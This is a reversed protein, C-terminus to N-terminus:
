KPLDIETIDSASLDSYIARLKGDKRYWFVIAREPQDLWLGDGLYAYDNSRMSTLFALAAGLKGALEENVKGDLSLVELWSAWDDLSAPLKGDALEAHGRMLEILNEEPAMAAQVVKEDVDCVTYGEPVEFSFLSEDAEEDFNFNKNVFKEIPSDDPFFQEVMVLEESKADVWIAFRYGGVFVEKGFTMVGDIEKEGLDITTEDDISQLQRLWAIQNFKGLGEVADHVIATGANETGVDKMLTLRKTFSEDWVSVVGAVESRWRGNECVTVHNEAPEPLNETHIFQDFSFVKILDLKKLAAAFAASNDGPMFMTAIVIAAIAAAVGGKIMWSVLRSAGRRQDQVSRSEVMPDDDDSVAQTALRRANEKVRQVAAADIPESMVAWAALEIQSPSNEMNDTQKNSM